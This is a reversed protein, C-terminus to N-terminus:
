QNGVAAFNDAANRARRLTETDRANRHVGLGVGLRAVHAEGVLRVVEPRRWRGFAIKIDRFNQTNGGSDPGIGNVRTISKQRLVGIKGLGAGILSQDEDPRRRGGDAGHARLARRLGGHRGHPHRHSGPVVAIILRRLPQHLLRTADAKREDDLGTRAAAALSHPHHVGGGLNRRRHFRRLPQCAGREAVIFKQQLAVERQCAVHFNLHEGVSMAVDHAQEVAIARHLAAMLLDDFLRRRRTQAVLHARRHCAGRDLSRACDSVYARAGHLKQHVFGLLKIEHFHVGPQLHLVGNRLENRTDVEHFPLQAYGLTRTQGLRLAVDDPVASGHLRAQVGLIRVMSIQRADAPDRVQVPGIGSGAQPEVDADICAILDRGEVIGHQALDNGPALRAALGGISQLPSQVLDLDHAYDGIAGEQGAHERILFKLAAAYRRIKEIHPARV